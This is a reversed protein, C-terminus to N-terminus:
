AFQRNEEVFVEFIKQAEEFDMRRQTLVSYKNNYEALSKMTALDNPNAELWKNCYKIKDTVFNLKRTVTAISEEFMGETAAKMLTQKDAYLDEILAQQVSNMETLAKISVKTASVYKYGLGVGLVIGAGILVKKGNKKMFEKAKNM